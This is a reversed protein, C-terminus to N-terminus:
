RGCCYRMTCRSSASSARRFRGTFVISFWSIISLVESVAQLAYLIRSPPHGVALAGAAALGRGFRGSRVPVLGPLRTGTENGNASTADSM